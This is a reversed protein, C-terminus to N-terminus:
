PELTGRLGQLLDFIWMCERPGFARSLALKEWPKNFASLILALRPPLAFTILSYDLYDLLCAQLANNMQTQLFYDFHSLYSDGDIFSLKLLM